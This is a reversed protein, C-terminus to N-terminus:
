SYEELINNIVINIDLQEFDADNLSNLYEIMMDIIKEDLKDEKSLKRKIQGPIKRTTQKEESHRIVM